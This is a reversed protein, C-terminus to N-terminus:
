LCRKETRVLGLKRTRCVRIGGNTGSGRTRSGLSTGPREAIFRLSCIDGVLDTNLPLPSSCLFLAHRASGQEKLELCVGRNRWRCVVQSQVFANDSTTFCLSPFKCAFSVPSPTMASFVHYTHVFLTLLQATSTIKKKLLSLFPIVARIPLLLKEFNFLM